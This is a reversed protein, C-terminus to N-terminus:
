LKSQAISPRQRLRPMSRAQDRLVRRLLKGSANKPVADVFHVGALRKYATKHDSVHKMIAQRTRSIEEPNGHARELASLSLVVFAFPLEGSYENPIGVVCVDAVDPHDLLHGELESPAVQFGRVKILEKIRDVVFVEKQENIIVEDGTRIWGDVFTDATATPNDLYRLSASPTRLHLEGPENYGALSGDAKVLRAVIGPLFVGVSGPKGVRRDRQCFTIGTATETMGYGQGITCDPLIRALSEQLEATLPAGGCQLFYVSSLNYDKIIPSKCLLLVQPPVVCLHTVRYRQISQLTRELTFKSSVVVTSGFFISGFLLKHMGYAHHFPLIALSVSGPRYLKSEMPVTEDNLRLYQAIQVVNVNISYHAIMVAKPKGTTGSSLLLLALKTRAEGPGLRLPTFQQVQGLGFEVLDQINSYPSGALPEFLVIHDSPIGIAQAGELAVPLMSPHAILMRAKVLRLQYTLEEATYMPNSTSVVGGLKQVAWLAVVYDVHNPSFICVVDDYGINWKIKLANALGHIRARLEDSGIERGTAEEILVPRQGYWQPRTPHQGDLIFQEITLDDQVPPMPGGAGHIDGVTM